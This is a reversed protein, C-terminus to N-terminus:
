RGCAMASRPPLNRSGWRRRSSEPASRTSERAAGAGSYAPLGSAFITPRSPLQTLSVPFQQRSAFDLQLLEGPPNHALARRTRRDLPPVLHGGMSAIVVGARGARDGRRVGSAGLAVGVLDVALIAEASAQAPSLGATHALQTINGLSAAFEALSRVSKPSSVDVTCSEVHHGNASMSEAVSVLTEENYDALLVTKGAGLRRAIAQGM